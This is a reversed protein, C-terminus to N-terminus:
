WDGLAWVDLSVQQRQFWQRWSEPFTFGTIILSSFCAFLCTRYLGTGSIVNERILVAWILFEISFYDASSRACRFSLKRMFHYYNIDYCVGSAINLNIKTTKGAKLLRTIEDTLCFSEWIITERYGCRSWYKSNGRSKFHLNQMSLKIKWQM